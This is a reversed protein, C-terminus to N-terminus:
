KKRLYINGLSSKLKIQVGSNNLNSLIKKGGRVAKLGEKQPIEIDFNTYVTGSTNLELNAKTNTPMTVDIESVNTSITIPSTQNVKSFEINITGVDSHATIPGTVDKMNIEGTGTKVEIESNIGTMTLSGLDGTDVAINVDKPLLISLPKRQFHSKLDIINLTNGEKTISLGFGNSNDKGRSYIATLGKTKEELTKRDDDQDHEFDGIFFDDDDDHNKKNESIVLKKTNTAEILIKTDSTIKVSTIGSLDYTFEKKQGNVIFMTFFLVIMIIKRM